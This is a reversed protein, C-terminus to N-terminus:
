APIDGPSPTSFQRGLYAVVPDAPDDSALVTEVYADREFAVVQLDWVCASEGGQAPRWGAVGPPRVFVRLPLENENGWWGLVAYDGTRGQHLILFGVGPRGDAVAPAPLAALALAVGPEFRPRDLPGPGFTIGYLKLRWGAHPLLGLPRIPRPTYPQM